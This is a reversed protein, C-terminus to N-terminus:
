LKGAKIQAIAKQKESEPAKSNEIYRIKDEPTKLNQYDNQVPPRASLPQVQHQPESSGCGAVVLAAFPVLLKRTVEM